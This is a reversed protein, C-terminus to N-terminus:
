RCLSETADKDLFEHDNKVWDIDIPFCCDPLCVFRISNCYLLIQLKNRRATLASIAKVHFAILFTLFLYKGTFLQAYQPFGAAHLWECAEKAEIEVSLSVIFIFHTM